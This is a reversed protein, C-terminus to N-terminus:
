RSVLNSANMLLQSAQQLVDDWQGRRTQWIHRVSPYWLSTDAGAFWYWPRGEVRPTMCLTPVGLAGALHVTTNSVSIVTDMAAVQAAFGDVDALADIAPDIHIPVAASSIESRADGYQLSVFRANAGSWIDRWQTLDVSKDKGATDHVSRWSLGIIPGSGDLARYRKKLMAVRELDPKLYGAHHPFSARTPRLVPGLESISAHGDVDSLDIKGLHIETIPVTRLGPFSRAMLPALRPECAFVVTDAAAITERLLGAVLVQDGLGQDAWILLRQGALSAGTWLPKPIGRHWGRHGPNTLRTRYHQWGEELKGYSLLSAGLAQRAADTPSRVVVGRRVDLAAEVNGLWEYAVARNATATPHDPELDAAHSFASAAEEYLGAEMLRGGLDNWVDAQRPSLRVSEQLAAIAGTSDGANARAHGLEALVGAEPAALRLSAEFAAAAEAWGVRRVLSRALDLWARANGPEATTVVRLDGIAATFDAAVMALRGRHHRLAVHDPALRLGEDILQRAPAFEGLAICQDIATVLATIATDITPNTPSPM